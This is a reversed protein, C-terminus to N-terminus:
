HSKIFRVFYTESSNLAKIKLQYIGGVLDPSTGYLNVSHSGGSIDAGIGNVQISIGDGQSYSLYGLAIIFLSLVLKKM